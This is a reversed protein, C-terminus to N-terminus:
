ELETSRVSLVRASKIAVYHKKTGSGYSSKAVILPPVFPMFLRAVIVLGMSERMEEQNGRENHEGM